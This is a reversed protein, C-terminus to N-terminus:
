VGVARRRAIVADAVRLVSTPQRGAADALRLLSEIAAPNKTAHQDKSFGMDGKVRDLCTRYVDESMDTRLSHTLSEEFCAHAAEVGTDPFDAEAVGCLRLLQRNVQPQGEAGKSRDCDWVVYSPIEFASFVLVAKPLNAKGGCPIVAVGDSELSVGRLAAAAILATRDEEGEVLVVLDAFFGENTWPTMLTRLRAREAEVGYAGDAVGDMREKRRVMDALSTAFARTKKPREPAGDIKRLVRVDDFRELDVFLPSHTTYIVQVGRLAAPPERTLRLLVASLHRQRGPHLYLEAEEIALIMSPKPPPPAAAAGELAPAPEAHLRPLHQLLTFIFARQLGHGVRDVPAPYGDETLRISAKPLELALPDGVSWDINLGTNPAFERLTGALNSELDRLLPLGGVPSVVERYRQEIETRLQTLRADRELASRVFVDVLQTIAQGRGEVADKAADRVAPVLVFRTFRELKAQGVERFGFFQGDDRVRQLQNTHSGEWAVLEADIRAVAVNGPLQPLDGFQPQDRVERYKERKDAASTAARIEAFAPCALRSGFYRQSSKGKPWTLVKEVTLRDGDLYTAYLEREEPALDCFTVAIRIAGGTDRNYFDEENYDAAPNYFVDLARLFASKGTGNRGVLAGMAGCSLRADLLCRFNVVGVEEIRM